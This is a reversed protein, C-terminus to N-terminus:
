KSCLRKKIESDAGKVYLKLLGDSPDRVLVSMRKRSSTFENKQLICYEEEHVGEFVPLVTVEGVRTAEKAKVGRAVTVGRESEARCEFGHLQAFEV